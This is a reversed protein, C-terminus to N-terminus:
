ATAFELQRKMPSCTITDARAPRIPQMCYLRQAISAAYNRSFDLRVAGSGPPM